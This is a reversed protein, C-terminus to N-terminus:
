LTILFCRPSPWPPRRAAGSVEGLAKLTSPSTNTMRTQLALSLHLEVINCMAVTALLQLSHPRNLKHVALASCSYLHISIFSKQTDTIIITVNAVIGCLIWSCSIESQVWGTTSPTVIYVMWVMAAYSQNPRFTVSIKSKFFILSKPHPFSM